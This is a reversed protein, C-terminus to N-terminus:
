LRCLLQRVRSIALQKPSPKNLLVYNLVNLSRYTESSLFITLCKLENVM